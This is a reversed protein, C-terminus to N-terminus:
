RLAIHRLFGFLPHMGDAPGTLSPTQMEGIACVRPAVPAPLNHAIDLRTEDDAAIGLCKLHVGFPTLRQLFDSLDDCEIVSVNRFGPSLRFAGNGEFSVSWAQGEFLEGRAAAIGRWQLQQAGIALPLAGRPRLEEERALGERCLREALARGNLTGKREVFVAHPSLCGRQDYAAVDAALRAILQQQAEVTKTSSAPVFALGLGHGHPIFTTTAPLRARIDALTSDGGYAAIVDCQAFLTDELATSGGQFTLVSLSQGVVPDVECLARAFLRPFVDDRSPAKAVVPVRSILPALLARFSATFVNGALVVGALRASHFTRAHTDRENPHPLLSLLGEVTCTELTTTLAWDVMEISLGTAAPLENRAELGIGERALLLMAAGHIAKAIQEAPLARLATGSSGVRCATKRVLEANLDGM